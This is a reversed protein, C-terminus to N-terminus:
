GKKKFLIYPNETESDEIYNENKDLYRYLRWDKQVIIYDFDYIRLINDIESDSYTYKDMVAQEVYYDKEEDSMDAFSKFVGFGLYKM